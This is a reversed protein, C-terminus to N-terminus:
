AMGWPKHCRRATCPETTGSGYAERSEELDVVVYRGCDVCYTIAADKANDPMPVDPAHGLRRSNVIGREM